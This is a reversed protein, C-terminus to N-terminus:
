YGKDWQYSRRPNFMRALELEDESLDARPGDRNIEAQDLRAQYEAKRELTKRALACNAATRANEAPRGKYINGLEYAGKDHYRQMGLEDRHPGRRDLDGGWWELWQEFTLKWEIGRQAAHSVQVCYKKRAVRRDMLEM